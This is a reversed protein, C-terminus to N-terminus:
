CNQFYPPIIRTAALWHSSEWWLTEAAIIRCFDQAQTYTAPMPKYNSFGPPRSLAISPGPPENGWHGLICKDGDWRSYVLLFGTHVNIRLLYNRIFLGNESFMTHMKSARSELFLRTLFALEYYWIMSRHTVPHFLWILLHSWESCRSSQLWLRSLIRRKLRLLGQVPGALLGEPRGGARQNATRYGRPPRPLFISNNKEEHKTKQRNELGHGPHHGLGFERILEEGFQFLLLKFVFISPQVNVGVYPGLCITKKSRNCKNNSSDVASEGLWARGFEQEHVERFNEKFGNRVAPIGVM